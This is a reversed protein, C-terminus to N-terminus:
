QIINYLSDNGMQGQLWPPLQSLLSIVVWIETTTTTNKKLLTTTKYSKVEPMWRVKAM